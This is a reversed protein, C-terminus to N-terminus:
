STGKLYRLCRVAKKMDATTPTRMSRCLRSVTEVIDLRTAVAAYLLSGVISRYQSTQKSDCEKTDAPQKEDGGAHPLTVSASGEQGYKTVMDQIYKHQHIVLTGSKMDREVIIGLLWNVQGLDKVKFKGKLEDKAKKILEATRGMIVLDDVYAALIISTGLDDKRVFCTTDTLM